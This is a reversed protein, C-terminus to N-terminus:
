RGCTRTARASRPWAVSSSPWAGWLVVPTALVLETWSRVGASVQPFLRHGFMALVFVALTLPLTWWFRRRFDVLEPNEGEELTPMEPELAMGCKPCIGPGQQRVEPHMPCTYTGAEGKADLNEGGGKPPPQPSPRLYKEPDGSFKKLCHDSCFFYTTGDFAFRRPSDAAVTMGCVPDIHTEAARNL